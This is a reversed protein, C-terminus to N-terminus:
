TPKASCLSVPTWCSLKSTPKLLGCYQSTHRKSESPRRSACEAESEDRSPSRGWSHNAYGVRPRNCYCGAERLMSCHRHCRHQGVKIVIPIGHLASRRKGRRLEEDRARAQALAIEEPCVSIIANLKKGAHNDAAICALSDKVLQECTLRRTDLEDSLEYAHRPSM